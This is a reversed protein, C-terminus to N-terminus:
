FLNEVVVVLRDMSPIPQKNFIIKTHNFDVNHLSTQIIEWATNRTDCFNVSESNITVLYGNNTKEFDIVIQEM